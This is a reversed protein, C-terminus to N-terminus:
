RMTALVMSVHAFLGDRVSSAESPSMTGDREAVVCWDFLQHWVARYREHRDRRLVSTVLEPAWYVQIRTPPTQQLIVAQM